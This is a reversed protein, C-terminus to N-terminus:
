RVIVMRLGRADADPQEPERIAMDRAVREATWCAVMADLVDDRACGPGRLREVTGRLPRGWAHELLKLRRERGPPKRKSEIVPQAANLEYFCVEPHVEVLRKQLEPTMLRDVERIKPLINFCQKSIGVPSGSADRNLNLAQEYSTADLVPRAPCPFVSPGRKPGLLKRMARDCARGGREYHNPLGIPIDVCLAALQESQELVDALRSVIRTGLSRTELDRFVVVWGDPCGDVGAVYTSMTRESREHSGDGDGGGSVAGTREGVEQTRPLQEIPCDEAGWGLELKTGGEHLM